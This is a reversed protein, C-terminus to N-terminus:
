STLFNLLILFIQCGWLIKAGRGADGLFWFEALVVLCGGYFLFRLGGGEGGATRLGVCFSSNARFIKALVTSLLNEAM